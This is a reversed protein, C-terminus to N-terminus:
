EKEAIRVVSSVSDGKDLKIFKVGQTARGSARIQSTGCRILIGKHTIAMVEDEQGILMTGSVTGTKSSIKTGIIGKGGRSQLRYEKLFTKKAFGKETLTFLSFQEKEMLSTALTM